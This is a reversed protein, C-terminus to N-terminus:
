QNIWNNWVDNEKNLTFQIVDENNDELIIKRLEDIAKEFEKDIVGMKDLVDRASETQVLNYCQLCLEQYDDNDISDYILHKYEKLEEADEYVNHAYGAFELNDIAKIINKDRESVYSAHQNVVMHATESTVYNLPLPCCHGNIDYNNSDMCTCKQDEPIDYKYWRKAISENLKVSKCIDDYSYWYVNNDDVWYRSEFYVAADGKGMAVAYNNSCIEIFM